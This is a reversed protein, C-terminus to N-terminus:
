AGRVPYCWGFPDAAMGFQIEMLKSKLRATLPGPQDLKTRFLVKGAHSIERIPTVVAATGCGFAEKLRGASYAASLVEVSVRREEVKVGEKRLLALLSDRTVGPLITGAELDATVVTEDILFMVNMAGIEEVFRREVADMWLVQDFGEKAAEQQALLSAAYNGACKVAGTGGPASRVYRTETRIRVGRPDESAFYGEVPCLVTFFLYRNSAKVRLMEETAILCPRIYLTGPRDPASAQDKLLLQCISRLAQQVEIRPMCMRDASQNFRELNKLPRFLSLSGNPMKYAKFGEFFAQGYHFVVAAPSLSFNHFAEIRPEQWAGNEFVQTMMHPTFEAGFAKGAM